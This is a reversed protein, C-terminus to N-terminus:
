MTLINGPMRKIVGNIEMITVVSNLESVNMNTLECLIDISVTGMKNIIVAINKETDNMDSFIDINKIEKKAEWGLQFMIDDFCTVPVAGNIILKNTGKSAKSYISGPVAFVERNEDAAINATILAGSKEGAETLLVGHSMGSIIRNRQPFHWPKPESEPMYETLVVGGCEAINKFLRENEPPYVVDIGCGLVCVTRGLASLAGEHAKTDIGRAGGSIVTIGLEAAEKAFDYACDMGYKTCTRTGVVAIAKEFARMEGAYFLILPPDSTELLLSPYDGSLITTFKPYNWKEICNNVYSLKKTKDLTAKTKASLFNLKDDNKDFNDWVEDIDGYYDVLKFYKSSGIDLAIALWLLKKDRDSYEM